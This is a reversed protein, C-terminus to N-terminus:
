KAKKAPPTKTPASNSKMLRVNKVIEPMFDSKDLVIIEEEYKPFGPEEATLKYRGAVDVVFIFKGSKASVQKSEVEERTDMNLLTVTTKYSGKYLSDGLIIKGRIATIKNNDEDNFTIKYIDLDGLGEKRYASVYGDRNNGALTFQMNDDATNLPYGMNEPMGWEKKTTDWQTKFIDYGGMSNHGESAFYLTQEDQSLIPFAEGFPTNINEGLNTPLGWKGDPLIKSIYLDTAGKGGPRDSVFYLVTNDHNLCAETEIDDTNINESLPTPKPFSKGKASYTQFLDGHIDVSEYYVMMTKGDASMGVSQEDEASNLPVGAAKAKSWKGNVVKSFYIDATKYGLAGIMAGMNTERRSTFTLTGENSSVFPYYDPYKSNVDKGLNTFTINIPKKIAVKAYEASEIMREAISIDKKSNKEIYLKLQKIGADFKNNVCLAKGLQIYVDPNTYNQKLAAEFYPISKSRDGYLKLYCCGIRYNYEANSPTAKLLKLYEPLANVYDTYEYYEKASLKEAQQAGVNEGFALQLLAFYIVIKKM